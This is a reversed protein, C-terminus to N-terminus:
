CAGRKRRSTASSSSRRQTAGAPRELPGRHPVRETRTWPAHVSRGHKTVPQATVKPARDRGQRRALVREHASVQPDTNAPGTPHWFRTTHESRRHRSRALMTRRARRWRTPLRQMRRVSGAAIVVTETDPGTWNRSSMARRDPRLRIPPPRSCGRRGKSSATRSGAPAVFVTRARSNHRREPPWPPRDFPVPIGCGTGKGCAFKSAM